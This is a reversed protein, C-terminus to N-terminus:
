IRASLFQMLDEAAESDVFSVLNPEAFRRGRRDHGRISDFLGFGARPSYPTFIYVESYAGPVGLNSQVERIEEFTFFVVEPWLQGRPIKAIYIGADTAAVASDPGREDGRQAVWVRQVADVNPVVRSLAHKWTGPLVAFDEGVRV